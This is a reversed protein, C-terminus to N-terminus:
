HLQFKVTITTLVAVPQGNLVYPKYKWKRVTNLAASDLLEGASSVVHPERLEGNKDIMSAIIVTGQMGLQKAEIPYEPPPSHILRGRMLGASVPIPGSAANGPVPRPPSTPFGSPIASLASLTKADPGLPELQNVRITLVPKDEEIVDIARPFLINQFSQFDNYITTDAKAYRVRLLGDYTLYVVETGNPERYFGALKVEGLKRDQRKWEDKSDSVTPFQIPVSSLVQRLRWPVYEGDAYESLKGSNQIAVYRFNGLTAEKRWQDKSQWWEEYTGNGTFEVDGSAVYTAKLHFPIGAAELDSLKRARAFFEEPTKPNGTAAATATHSVPASAPQTQARLIAPAFLLYFM